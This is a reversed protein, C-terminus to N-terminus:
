LDSRSRASTSIPPARTCWRAPSSRTSALPMVRPPPPEAPAKSVCCMSVRRCCARGWASPRWAETGARLLEVFWTGQWRPQRPIQGRRATSGPQRDARGDAREADHVPVRGLGQGRDPQFLLFKNGTAKACTPRRSAARPIPRRSQGIGRRGGPQERHVAPAGLGAPLAPWPKHPETQYWLAVSSM